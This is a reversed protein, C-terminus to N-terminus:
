LLEIKIEIEGEQAKLAVAEEKVEGILKLKEYLEKVKVSGLKAIIVSRHKFYERKIVEGGLQTFVKEIEKRAAEIDKVDIVFSIGQENKEMSSRASLEYPTDKRKSEYQGVIPSPPAVQGQDEINASSKATDIPEGSPIEKEAKYRFQDARKEPAPKDEDIGHPKEERHTFMRSTSEQSPVKALKIEPQIGKFIYITTMAILIATVAEIPVKIHLPYFLRQLIGRKPEAESRVRVMVKQTLWAPPEIEELKQIYEVTKRLDALSEKCRQCTKLHEDILVREAASIIGEIYAAHRKQVESCKM